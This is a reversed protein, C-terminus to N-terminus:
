YKYISMTADMSSAFAKSNKQRANSMLLTSNLQLIQENGKGFLEIANKLNQIRLGQDMKLGAQIIMSLIDTAAQINLMGISYQAKFNCFQFMAQHNKNLSNSLTQYSCILEEMLRAMDYVAKADKIFGVKSKIEEIMKAQDQMQAQIGQMTTLTINSQILSTHAAADYTLQAGAQAMSDHNEAAPWITFLFMLITLPLFAKIYKKM